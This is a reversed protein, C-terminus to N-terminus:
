GKRGERLARLSATSEMAGSSPSNSSRRAGSPRVGVVAVRDDSLAVAQIAPDLRQSARGRAAAVLLAGGDGPEVGLVAVAQVRGDGV